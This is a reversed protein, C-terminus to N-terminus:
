LDDQNQLHRHHNRNRRQELQLSNRRRNSLVQELEKRLEQRQLQEM